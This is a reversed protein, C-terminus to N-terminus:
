RPERLMLPSGGVFTFTGWQSYYIGTAGELDLTYVGKEPYILRESGYKDALFAYAANAPVQVQRRTQSRNYVVTTRFGPGDLAIRVVGTHSAGTVEPTKSGSTVGALYKFAVKLTRYAPDDPPFYAMKYVAIREAGAALANAYAQILYSQQNGKDVAFDQGVASGDGAVPVSTEMLWVPKAFGYKTMLSQYLRIIEYVREPEKHIDLSIADFYWNGAAANDRRAEALWRNFFTTDTGDTHCPGDVIGLSAFIVTARPNGAKIALYGTKLFYYYDEPTGAWSYGHMTPQCIDPENWIIWQDVTGAMNQALRRAFQGFHNGPDNWPLRIGRPPQLGNGGGAYAPTFEILGVVSLPTQYYRSTYQINGVDGPANLSSWYFLERTWSLGLDAARANGDSVESVQATGFRLDAAVGGPWAPGPTPSPTPPRETTVPTPDKGSGSGFPTATPTPVTAATAPPEVSPLGACGGWLLLGCALLALGTVRM